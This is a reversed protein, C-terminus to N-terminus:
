HIKEGLKRLRKSKDIVDKGGFGRKKKAVRLQIEFVTTAHLPIKWWSRAAIIPEDPHFSLNKRRDTHPNVDQQLL